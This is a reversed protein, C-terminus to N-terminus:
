RKKRPRGGLMGNKRVAEAKKHSTASGGLRGVQSFVVSNEVISDCHPCKFEGRNSKAVFSFALRDEIIKECSPCKL